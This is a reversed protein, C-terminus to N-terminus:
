FAAGTNMFADGSASTANFIQRDSWLPIQVRTMLKDTFFLKDHAINEIANGIWDYGFRELFTIAIRMRFAAVTPCFEVTGASASGIRPM